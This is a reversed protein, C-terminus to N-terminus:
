QSCVTSRATWMGSPTSSFFFQCKNVTYSLRNPQAKKETGPPPTPRGRCGARTSSKRSHLLLGDKLNKWVVESGDCRSLLKSPLVSNFLNQQPFPPTFQNGVTIFVSGHLVTCAATTPSPSSVPRRTSQCAPLCAPCNWLTHWHATTHTLTDAM